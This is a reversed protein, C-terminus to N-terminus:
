TESLMFNFVVNVCLYDYRGRDETEQGDRGKM